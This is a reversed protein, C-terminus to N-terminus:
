PWWSGCKENTLMLWLRLCSWSSYPSSESQSVSTTSLGHGWNFITQRIGTSHRGQTDLNVLYLWMDVFNYGVLSAMHLATALCRVTYWLGSAVCCSNNLWLEQPQQSPLYLYSKCIAQDKARPITLEHQVQHATFHLHITWFLFCCLTVVTPLSVWSRLDKSQWFVLFVTLIQSVLPRLFAPMLSRCCAQM